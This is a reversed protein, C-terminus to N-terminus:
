PRGAAAEALLQDVDARLLRPIGSPLLIPHIRGARKWRGVTPVTVGLFPALDAYTFMQPDQGIPPLFTLERRRYRRQGGPTLLCPVLGEKVWRGCTRSDVRCVQALEGPRFTQRAIFEGRASLGGTM